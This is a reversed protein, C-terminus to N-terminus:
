NFDISGIIRLNNNSPNILVTKKSFKTLPKLLKLVIKEKEISEVICPITQLGHVLTLQQNKMIEKKYYPIIKISGNIKEFV